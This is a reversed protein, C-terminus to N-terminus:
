PSLTIKGGTVACNENDNIKATGCGSGTSADSQGITADDGNTYLWNAKINSRIELAMVNKLLVSNTDADDYEYPNDHVYFVSYENETYTGKYPAKDSAAGKWAGYINEYFGFDDDDLEMFSYYQDANDYGSLPFYFGSKNTVYFFGPGPTGVKQLVNFAIYGNSPLNTPTLDSGLDGYADDVANSIL